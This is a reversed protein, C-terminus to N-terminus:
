SIREAIKRLLEIKNLPKVIVDDCGAEAIANLDATTAYATQAIIPLNKYESKILRTAEFGNMEPLQIDMLVINIDHNKRCLDVAELGNKAWLIKVDHNRSLVIQLYRFNTEVDEAILIVKGSLFDLSEDRQKKEPVVEAPVVDSLPFTVYFATGVNLESEVRIEGNLLQTLKLAISLGLGTGRYHKTKIDAVKTFREFIKEQQEKAIGIGTDKIYFVLHTKAENPFYCFEISGKSTFKISNNLINLLIQKLRFPDTKLIYEAKETPEIFYAKVANNPIESSLTQKFSKFVEESIQVVSTERLNIKIQNAEIRSIDLIDDILHMLDNGSSEMMGYYEKLETPSTGPDQILASFGLIANLPTRIEHSMNALFSSKLKDSEEAKEKAANLEATRELVRIELSEREEQLKRQATDREKKSAEISQLMDNFGDYLIGTEDNSEKTVRVSYDLTKRIKRTVAALRLIPGSIVRELGYTLLVALLVSLVFIIIVSKIHDNTKEKIINTSAVLVLTGLMENGSSIKEKVLIVNKDKEFRLIDSMSKVSESKADHPYEAYLKGNADYAAGIIITPINALKQLINKAGEKDDFLYAPILYDGILKADLTINSKLDNRSTHINSLIEITFGTIISIVTVILIISFIKQRISFGKLGRM